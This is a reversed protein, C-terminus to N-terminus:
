NLAKLAEISKNINTIFATASRQYTASLKSLGTPNNNRLLNTISEQLNSVKYLHGVDYIRNNFIIDLMDKSEEDRVYTGNLTKDYYAPTIIQESHYGLLEVIAGVTELDESVAPV